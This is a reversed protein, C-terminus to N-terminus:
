QGALAQDIKAGAATLRQRFEGDLKVQYARFTATFKARNGAKAADISPQVGDAIERLVQELEDQGTQAQDPATLNSLDDAAKKVAAQFRELATAIDNSSKSSRAATGLDSGATGVSSLITQVQSQYASKGPTTAGQTAAQTPTTAATSGNGKDDGGGCGAAAPVLALLIALPLLRRRTM